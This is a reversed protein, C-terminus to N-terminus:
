IGHRRYIELRLNVMEQTVGEHDVIDAALRETLWRKPILCCLAFM